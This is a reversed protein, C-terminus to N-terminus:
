GSNCISKTSDIMTSEVAWVNGVYMVTHPADDRTM